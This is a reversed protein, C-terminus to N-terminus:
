ADGSTRPHPHFEEVISAVQQVRPGVQGSSELHQRLHHLARHQAVRVAGASMGTVAATDSSSLGVIIRLTLIERQAPTLIALLARVAARREGRMTPEEPGERRYYDTVKHAAIGYVWRLIEHPGGAFTSLGRLVAICIDQAVDDASGHGSRPTIRARCYRILAPRIQSFLRSVAAPDGNLAASIVEPPLDAGARASAVGGSVDGTTDAPLRAPFSPM